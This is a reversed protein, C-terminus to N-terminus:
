LKLGNFKSSTRWPVEFASARAANAQAVIQPWWQILQATKPWFKFSQWSKSLVFVSLGQRRIMEREANGKSRFFDASLVAWDGEVGLQEMWEIDPTGHPFRDRLATVGSFIKPDFERASFEQLGKAWVPPLNHDLLFKM